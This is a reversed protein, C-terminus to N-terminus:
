EARKAGGARGDLLLAGFIVMQAAIYGGFVAPASIPRLLAFIAGFLLVTLLLKGIVGLWAARLLASADSRVGSGLLRAGLFANPIAATMGGAFTSVAAVRDMWLWVLLAVAVSAGIQALVTLPVVNSQEGTM